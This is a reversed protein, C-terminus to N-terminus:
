RASRESEPFVASEVSLSLSVPFRQQQGNQRSRAGIAGLIISFNRAGVNQVAKVVFPRSLGRSIAVGTRTMM